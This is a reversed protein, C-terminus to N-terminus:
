HFRQDLQFKQIKDLFLLDVTATPLLSNNPNVSKNIYHLINTTKLFNLSCRSVDITPYGM